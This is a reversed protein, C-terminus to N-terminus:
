EKFSWFPLIVDTLTVITDKRKLKRRLRLLHKGENLESIKLYTEFGLINNMGTTVVFDEDMELSDIKFSYMKNFTKLYVKRISDKQRASTIEESWNTNIKMSTSLGRRDNKPRLSDNFNFIHEEINETYPVFITLYSGTIVKSPIVMRGPFDGDETLMDLYNEKKAFI